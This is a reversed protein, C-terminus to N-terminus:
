PQDMAPPYFGANARTDIAADTQPIDDVVRGGMRMLLLCDGYGSFGAHCRSAVRLDLLRLPLGAPDGVAVQGVRFPQGM